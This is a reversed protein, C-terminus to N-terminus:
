KTIEGIIPFIKYYNKNKIESHEDFFRVVETKDDESRKTGIMQRINEFHIKLQEKPFSNPLENILDNCEDMYSRYHIPLTAPHLGAPWTVINIGLAWSIGHKDILDYKRMIDKIWRILNPYEPVSVSSVSPLIDIFSILGSSLIMELNQKFREVSLGDRLEEGVKGIADISASLTWTADKNKKVLELYNEIVKSKVNLNSTLNIIVNKEYIKKTNHIALINQIVDLLELELFPEGGLFNYTFRGKKSIQYKEIYKYLALLVAEKWEQNKLIPKNKVEAWLSSVTPTCYMCTQNCTTSLMLEIYDTHDQDILETLEEQSWNKDKWLNWNNWISNPWAQKCYTCKSPLENKEIFFQKEELLHKNRVFVEAGLEKIEEISIHQIDRKCCNRFEMNPVSINIDTWMKSCILRKM